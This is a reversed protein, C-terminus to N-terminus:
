KDDVVPLNVVFHLFFRLLENPLRIGNKDNFLQAQQLYYEAFSWLDNLHRLKKFNINFNLFSRDDDENLSSFTPTQPLFSFSTDSEHFLDPEVGEQVLIDKLTYEFSPIVLIQPDTITQLHSTYNEYSMLDLLSDLIMTEKQSLTFFSNNVSFKKLNKHSLGRLIAHATFFNQSDYLMRTLDLFYFFLDHARDSNITNAITNIVWNTVDRSRQFVPTLDHSKNESLYVKDVLSVKKLGAFLSCDYYIFQLVLTECPILDLKTVLSDLNKQKHIINEPTLKKQTLFTDYKIKQQVKINSFIRPVTRSLLKKSNEEEETIQEVKEVLRTIETNKVFINFHNMLLKNNAFDNEYNQKYWSILFKLIGQQKTNSISEFLNFYKDVPDRFIEVRQMHPLKFKKPIQNGTNIPAQISFEKTSSRKMSLEPVIKKDKLVSMDKEKIDKLDKNHKGYTLSSDETSSNINDETSFNIKEESISSNGHSEMKEKRFPFFTAKSARPSNYLRMLFQFLQYPTTYRRFFVFFCNLDSMVDWHSGYLDGLNHVFNNVIQYFSGSKILVNGVNDELSAYSVEMDLSGVGSDPYDELIDLVYSKESQEENVSDGKTHKRPTSVYHFLTSSNRLWECFIMKFGVDTAESNDDDTENHSISDHSSHKSLTSSLDGSISSWIKNEGRVKLTGVTKRGRATPPPVNEPVIGTSSSPKKFFRIPQHFSSETNQNHQHIDKNQHSTNKKNFDTGMLTKSTETNEKGPLKNGFWEELMQDIQLNCKKHMEKKYKSFITSNALDKPFQDLSKKDTNDFLLKEEKTLHTYNLSLSSPRKIVNTKKKKFTKKIPMKKKNPKNNLVIDDIENMFTENLKDILIPQQNDNENSEEDEDDEDFPDRELPELNNFNM